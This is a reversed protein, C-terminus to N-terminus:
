TLARVTRAAWRHHDDEYEDRNKELPSVHRRVM